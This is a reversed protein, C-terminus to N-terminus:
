GHGGPGDQHSPVAFADLYEDQVGGQNVWREHSVGWHVAAFEVAEMPSDCEFLETEGEEEIWAYVDASEAKGFDAVEFRRIEFKGSAPRIELWAVCAEGNESFRGLFQEIAAGRALTAALEVEPLYRPM